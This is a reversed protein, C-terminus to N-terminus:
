KLTLNITCDYEKGNNEDKVKSRLMLVPQQKTNFSVSGTSSGSIIADGANEGHFTYSFAGNDSFSGFNGYYAPAGTFEIKLSGYWTFEVSKVTHGSLKSANINIGQEKLDGAIAQLDCGKYIKGFKVGSGEVNLDTEEIGWQRNIASTFLTMAMPSLINAVGTVTKGNWTFTVQIENAKTPKEFSVSCDPKDVIEYLVNIKSDKDVETANFQGTVVEVDKTSETSASGSGSEKKLPLEFMFNGDGTFEITKVEAALLSHNPVELMIAYDAKPTPNLAPINERSNNEKHCAFLVTLAAAMMLLKKM